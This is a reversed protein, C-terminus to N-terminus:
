RAKEKGKKLKQAPPPDLTGPSWAHIARTLFGPLVALKRVQALLQARDSQPLSPDRSRVFFVAARLEAGHLELEGGDHLFRTIATTTRASFRATVLARWAPASPAATREAEAFLLPLAQRSLHQRQPEDLTTVAGASRISEEQAKWAMLLKPDIGGPEAESRLDPPPASGAQMLTLARHNRQRAAREQASPEGPVPLERLLAEAEAGPVKQAARVYLVALTYREDPPYQNIQERLLTLARQPQGAAVEALVADDLSRQFSAADRAKLRELVGRAAAFEGRDCLITAWLSLSPGHEPFDRAAQEALAAWEGPAWIRARLYARDAASLQASAAEARYEAQVAAGQGNRLLTDQYIRHHAVSDPHAARAQTVLRVADDVRGIRQLRRGADEVGDSPYGLVQQRGVLLRVLEDPREEQELYRLCLDAGSELLGLQTRSVSGSDQSLSLSRPPDTFPYDVHGHAVTRAGCYLSPLAPRPTEGEERYYEITRYFLAAAGLVNWGHVRQSSIAYVTGSELVSQGPGYVVLDHTGPPLDFTTRGSSVIPHRRGAITVEVPAGIENQVFFPLPTPGKALSLLSLLFGAVVALTLARSWSSLFLGFPVKGFVRYAHGEGTPAMEQVLYTGLPFLPVFMCVVFHTALYTSDIVDPEGSGYFTAGIGNYTSLWLSGTHPELFLRRSSLLERATERHKRIRRLLYSWRLARYVRHPSGSEIAALVRPDEAALDELEPVRSLIGSPDRIFPRM